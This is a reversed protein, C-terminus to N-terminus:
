SLLILFYESHSFYGFVSNKRIRIEGYKTWIRYFVYWFFKWIQVCKVCPNSTVRMWTFNSKVQRDRPCYVYRNETLFYWLTWFYSWVVSFSIRLGQQLNLYNDIHLGVSHLHHCIKKPFCIRVICWIHHKACNPVMQLIKFAHCVGM